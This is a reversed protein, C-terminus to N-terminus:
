NLGQSDNENRNLKDVLLSNFLLHVGYICKNIKWFSCRFRMRTGLFDSVIFNNDINSFNKILFSGPQKIPVAELKRRLRIKILNFTKNSELLNFFTM